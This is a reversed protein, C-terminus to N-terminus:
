TLKQIMTLPQICQSPDRKLSRCPFCLCKLLCVREGGIKEAMSVLKPSGTKLFETPEIKMM